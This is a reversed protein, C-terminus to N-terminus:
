ALITFVVLAGITVGTAVWCAEKISKRLHKLHPPLDELGQIFNFM